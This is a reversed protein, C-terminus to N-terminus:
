QRRRALLEGCAIMRNILQTTSLTELRDIERQVSESIESPTAAPAAPAAPATERLDGVEGQMILVRARVPAVVAAVRGQPIRMSAASKEIHGLQDLARQVRPENIRFFESIKDTM